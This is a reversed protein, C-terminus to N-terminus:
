VSPVQLLHSQLQDTLFLFMLICFYCFWEYFGLIRSNYPAMFGKLWFPSKQHLNCFDVEVSVEACQSTCRLLGPISQLRLQSWAWTSVCHYWTHSMQTWEIKWRARREQHYSPQRCGWAQRRKKPERLLELISKWMISYVQRPWQEGRFWYMWPDHLVSHLFVHPM